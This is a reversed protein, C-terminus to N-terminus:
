DTPGDHSSSFPALLMNKLRTMHTRFYQDGAKRIAEAQTPYPHIVKSLKQLKVGHTMATTLESIIEGAHRAVLTAGLIRGSFIHGARRQVHIKLMGETEGELVARDVDALEIIITEYRLHRKELEQASLGVHAVEPDTYTCWPITLDSFKSHFPILGFLGNRVVIRAAADAIHTFKQPLCIDGAAYIRPNATRLHDNVKVGHKDHEVGAAELNLQEISPTRGVALLLADVTHEEIRGAQEILLSKDRANSRVEKLDTSLHVHVGDRQFAEHIVRGADSDDRPLLRGSRQILHVESGLRAFTQALECGIPGGGVVGLRPPLETLNFVTENTLYDTEDLGPLSPIAPRSGTAICAKAFHLTQGAVELTDAGTFRGEGFYVDVGLSAFRKASDHRALDARLRRMRRMLAPFDSQINGSIKIGFAEANRADALARASRILAKSPVCGVNLCDGGMHGREVLAVKAGVGAAAAATVLGATGAGIVVMGYRGRPTPNTWDSPHVRAALERSHEDAPHLAPMDPM